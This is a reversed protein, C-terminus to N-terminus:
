IQRVTVGDYGSGKLEPIYRTVPDDISKIYGDRVAAGVLTSTLSKAVSFSTWRQGPGYGRAYRELRVKGDQLVILGAMNLDAMAKDIEATGELPTGAPLPRIKGDAKVVHTPFLKEMQRFNRDREADSWFLVKASEARLRAAAEASPPAPAPTACGLLLFPLLAWLGAKTM